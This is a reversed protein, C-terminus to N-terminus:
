WVTGTMLLSPLWRWRAGGGGRRRRHRSQAPTPITTSTATVVSAQIRSDGPGWGAAPWPVASREADRRAAAAVVVVPAAVVVVAAVASPSPGLFRSALALKSSPECPHRGSPAARRVLDVSAVSPPQDSRTRGSDDAPPGTPMVTGSTVM